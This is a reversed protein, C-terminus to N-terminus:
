ASLLLYMRKCLVHDDERYHHEYGRGHPDTGSRHGIRWRHFAPRCSQQESQGLPEALELHHRPNAHCSEKITDFPFGEGARTRTLFRPTLFASNEFARYSGVRATKGCIGKCKSFIGPCATAM